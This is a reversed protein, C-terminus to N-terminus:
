RCSVLYPDWPSWQVSFWAVVSSIKMGLLDICVVAVLPSWLVM